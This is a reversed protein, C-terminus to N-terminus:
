KWYVESKGSADARLTILFSAFGGFLGLVTEYTLIVTIEGNLQIHGTGSWQIDPGLGTQERLAQARRDTETGIRGAIEAERVLETAFTDLQQKAIFIPLLKVAFAIVLMACLVLICVDIYGEGRRSTLIRKLM